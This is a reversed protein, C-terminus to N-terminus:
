NEIKELELKTTKVEGKRIFEITVEEGVGTESYLYKRLDLLSHVENGDIKTIVDAQELGAHDAPSNPQVQAIVVANSDIDEPLGIEFRVQPPVQYLPVTGIGIQPREVEGQTELQEMIPLATDVPIAFGIGEVSSQAIKMSNIGIVEGDGNVLAGGSNGPNIAADTQIVETVWDPQRDRDIDVPVSRNLGSVIGKTVSNAFELGLPNGIALVTEGVILDESNGFTAITEINEGNIELVALDTLADEGLVKAEIRTEDNLVIEVQEAGDVVHQNTVVYAKGDEKKYIIGSGTGAEQSDMWISQQQLNVVGVVAESVEQINTSMTGEESTLKEIMPTGDVQVSEPQSSNSVQENGIDIVNNTFLLTVIVTAIIGGVIGGIMGHLWPSKDKQKNENTHSSRSAHNNQTTQEHSYYSHNATEDLENMQSNSYGNRNENVDTDNRGNQDDKNVYPPYRHDHDGMHIVERKKINIYINIISDRTYVSGISHILYLQPMFTYDIDPLTTM